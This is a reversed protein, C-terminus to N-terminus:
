RFSGCGRVVLGMDELVWCRGGVLGAGLSWCRWVVLALDQLGLMELWWAWSRFSCSGGVM